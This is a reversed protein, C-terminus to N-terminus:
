KRGITLDLDSIKKPIKRGRRSKSYNIDAQAKLPDIGGNKEARIASLEQSRDYLDGLKQRHGNTKNMFQNPCYPNIKETIFANPITFIRDWEVGGEDIYIHAENMSQEVEIVEKSVPHQFLYIM